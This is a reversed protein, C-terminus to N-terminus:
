HDAALVILAVVGLVIAADALNFSPWRAAGIGVDVFDTVLGDPLRDAVNAFAGGIVLGLPLSRRWGAGARASVVLWALLGIGVLATVWVLVGGADTLLGFAVGSNFGLRFRVLEGAIPIASGPDLASNVAAKSTLDGILVAAATTLGIAASTGSRASASVVNAAGQVARSDAARLEHVQESTDLRM